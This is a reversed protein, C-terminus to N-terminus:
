PYSPLDYGRSLIHDWVSAEGDAASMLDLTLATGSAMVAATDTTEDSLDGNLNRDYLFSGAGDYTCSSTPAYTIDSAAAGTAVYRNRTTDRTLAQRQAYRSFNPAAHDNGPGAWNCIFGQIQGTLSTQVSDGFGFYAEGAAETELGVALVRTHSDGVGAQWAYSYSGLLSDPDFEATFVNFNDSWNSAPNVAFGTLRSSSIADDLLNASADSSASGCATGSRAQLVVNSAGSKVYHVSGNRTIDGNPQDQCNRETYADEILYTLLGEFIELDRDVVSHQLTLVISKDAGDAAEYHLEIAYSWTDGADDLAMSAADFTVGAVGTAQMEATLDLTSGPVVDDPWTAGGHEYVAVLGALGTLGMTVQAQVDQMRANLQAAACAEGSETSAVWIGLDGGPLQGASETGTSGPHEEWKLSPGYCNANGARRFFSQLEFKSEVSSSGSLVGRIVSTAADYASPPPPPAPAPPIVVLWRSTNFAAPAGLGGQASGGVPGVGGPQPAGVQAAGSVPSAVAIGAPFDMISSADLGDEETAVPASDGGGCALFTSAFLGLLRRAGRHPCLYTMSETFSVGGRHKLRPEAHLKVAV